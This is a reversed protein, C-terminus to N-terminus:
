KFSVQGNTLMPLLWNRLRSLEENEKITVSKRKEINLMMKAFKKLIKDNPIVTLYKEIGSFILGLINTGNAYGAVYVHFFDTNFLRHFYFKLEDNVVKVTTVHHSSVIDGYFIDPVLFAKGIIDKSFDIATQQTNCMVLDYPKLVKEKSYNGSFTKLGGHKYSGDVNFSALNIMPVGEGEIANSDYSLGRNSQFYKGIQSVEWGVPIDRKLEENWIMRGGASKYPKGEDNPFEFQLFWYDFITKALIELQQNIKNNLEIKKDLKVFINSIKKQQKIPM